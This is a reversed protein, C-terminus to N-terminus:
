YYNKNVRKIVISVFFSKLNSTILKNWFASTGINVRIIFIGKCILIISAIIDLTLATAPNHLPLVFSESENQRPEFGLGAAM